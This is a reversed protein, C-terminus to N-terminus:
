RAGGVAAILANVIRDAAHGDGYPTGQVFSKRGELVQIAQEVISPSDTGVLAGYNGDILEQRETVDRIVLLPVGLLPAEEQVGGSDTIVLQASQLLILWPLYDPPAIVRVKSGELRHAVAEQVVPNAHVPLVVEVDPRSALLKLAEFIEGLHRHNERRHVTAVVRHVGDAKERGPLQNRVHFLADVGPNGTVFIQGGVGERELNKASLTSPAFHWTSVSSILRRHFEEPFPSDMSYTRLGAEVHGIPIQLYFSAMATCAATSTDGQVLVVRPKEARLIESVRTILEASLDNLDQGNRMVGLNYRPALEFHALLTPMLHDHQGTNILITELGPAARLCRVIPAMKIAEPRTGFVVAVKADAETAPTSEM